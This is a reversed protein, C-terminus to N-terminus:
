AHTYIQEEGVVRAAYELAASVDEATLEPYTTLIRDVTYGGAVLGLINRIMIRTGRIVPKGSCVNPDTVIREQM